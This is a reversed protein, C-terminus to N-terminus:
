RDTKLALAAPETSTMSKRNRSNGGPRGHVPQKCEPPTVAHPLDISPTATEDGGMEIAPLALVLSAGNGGGILVCLRALAVPHEEHQEVVGAGPNGFGKL